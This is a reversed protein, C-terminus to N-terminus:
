SISEIVREIGELIDYVGPLGFEEAIEVSGTCVILILIQVNM